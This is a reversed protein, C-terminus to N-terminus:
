PERARLVLGELGWRVARIRGDASVDAAFLVVRAPAGAPAPALLEVRVSGETVPVAPDDPPAVVHLIAARLVAYHPAALLYDVEIATGVEPELGIAWAFISNDTVLPRPSRATAEWASDADARIGEGDVALRIRRVVPERGQVQATVTRSLLLPEFLPEFRYLGTWEEIQRTSGSARRLVTRVELAPGGGFEVRRLGFEAAAPAAADERLDLRPRSEALERMRELAGVRLRALAPAQVEITELQPASPVVEPPPPAPAPPQPRPAPPATSRRHNSNASAAPAMAALALLLWLRLVAALM